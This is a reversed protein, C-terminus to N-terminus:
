EATCSTANVGSPSAGSPEAGAPIPERAMRACLSLLKRRDLPKSIYDDCGAALCKGRDGEMSHATLALIPLRCGLARLRRAASYGDMEPMQMDLLLLDFPPPDRLPGTAEGSISLAQVARLGNDVVIVQAGARELFLTVLHQNDPGDEALLVRLGALSVASSLRDTSVGRAVSETQDQTAAAPDFMPVAELPGAPLTLTFVSGKGLESTATIDGGLLQALRKSIALGLGTGGFRRTTSADAQQFPSFLRAAQAATMGTGTDIVHFRLRPGGRADPEAAVRVSVGGSETFKIANGVLNLLVQRLRLVDSSVIKPVSTEYVIEFSLKKAAARVRMLSQVEEMVTPIDTPLSEISMQGAEIKSLDLIDNLISLLHEGNRRITEIYELRRPPALFRDGDEGLLEVYGLIATMPTRIEHSMSALFGSKARNAARAAAEARRLRAFMWWVLPGALISLLSADGFARAWGPMAALPEDLAAMIVLEAIFIGSTVLTVPALPSAARRPTAGVGSENV